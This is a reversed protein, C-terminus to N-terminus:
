EQDLEAQAMNKLFEGQTQMQLGKAKVVESLFRMRRRAQSRFLNLLKRNERELAAIATMQMKIIEIDSLRESDGGYENNYVLEELDAVRKARKVPSPTYTEEAARKLTRKVPSPTYTEEAARKLTSALEDLDPYNPTCPTDGTLDIFNENESIHTPNFLKPLVEVQEPHGPSLFDMDLNEEM